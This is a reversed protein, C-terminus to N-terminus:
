ILKDSMVVVLFWRLMIFLLVVAFLDFRESGLLREGFLFHCGLPFCLLLCDGFCCCALRRICYINLFWYTNFRLSNMVM